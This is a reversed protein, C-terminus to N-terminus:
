QHITKYYWQIHSAEHIPYNTGPFFGRGLDTRHFNHELALCKDIATYAPLLMGRTIEWKVNVSGEPKGDSSVKAGGEITRTTNPREVGWVMYWNASEYQVNHIIYTPGPKWVGNNAESRSVKVHGLTHHVNFGPMPVGNNNEYEGTINWLYMYNGNPWSRLNSTLRFHPMQLTLYSSPTLDPCRVGGTTPPPLYGGGDGPPPLLIPEDFDSQETEFNGLVITPNEIAYEDNTVVFNNEIYNIGTQKQRFNILNDANKMSVVFGPSEGKWELDDIHELEMENTWWSITINSLDDLNFNEALYPATISINNERIFEIFSDFEESGETRHNERGTNYFSNVIASYRKGSPDTVEDDFLQRLNVNIEGSNEELDAFSFLEERAESNRFVEGFFLSLEKLKEEYFPDQVELQDLGIDDQGNDQCSALGGFLLVVLLKFILLKKKM